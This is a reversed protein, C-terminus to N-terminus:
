RLAPSTALCFFIERLSAFGCLNPSLLLLQALAFISLGLGWTTLSVTSATKLGFRQPKADERSIKKQVRAM